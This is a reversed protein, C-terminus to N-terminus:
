PTSLACYDRTQGPFPVLSSIDGDEISEENEDGNDLGNDGRNLVPADGRCPACIVLHVDRKGYEYENAASKTAFATNM